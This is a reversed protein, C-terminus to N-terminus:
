WRDCPRSRRPNRKRKRKPLRCAPWKCRPVNPHKRPNRDRSNRRKWSKNTWDIFWISLCVNMKTCDTNEKESCTNRRKKTCDNAGRSGKCSKRTFPLTQRCLSDTRQSDSQTKPVHYWCGTPISGFIDKATSTAIEAISRPKQRAMTKAKVQGVECTRGRMTSSSTAAAPCTITSQQRLYGVRYM